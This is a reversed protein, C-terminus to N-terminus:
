RLFLFVFAACIFSGAILGIMTIKIAKKLEVKHIVSFFPGYFFAACGGSICLSIDMSPHINFIKIIIAAFLNMPYVVIIITMSAQITKILSGKGNAVRFLFYFFCGSIICSILVFLFYIIENIIPFIQWHTLQKLGFMKEILVAFVVLLALQTLTESPKVNGKDIQDAYSLPNGSVAKFVRGFERISKTHRKLTEEYLGAWFGRREKEDKEKQLTEELFLQRFCMEFTKKDAKPEFLRNTVDIATTQQWQTLGRSCRKFPKKAWNNLKFDNNNTQFLLFFFIRLVKIKSKKSHQLFYENIENGKKEILERLEREDFSELNCVFMFSYGFLGRDMVLVNDFGTNTDKLKTIFDHFPTKLKDNWPKNFTKDQIDLYGCDILRLTFLKIFDKKRNSVLGQM